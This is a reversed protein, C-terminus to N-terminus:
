RRSMAGLHSLLIPRLIPIMRNTGLFGKDMFLLSSSLHSQFAQRQGEMLQAAGIQLEGEAAKVQGKEHHFAASGAIIAILFWRGAGRWITKM